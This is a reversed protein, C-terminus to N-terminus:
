EKWLAYACEKYTLKPYVKKCINMKMAMLELREHKADNITVKFDESDM